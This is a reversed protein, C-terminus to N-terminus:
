KFLLKFKFLFRVKTNQMDSLNKHMRENEELLHSHSGEDHKRETSSIEIDKKLHSIQDLLSERRSRM